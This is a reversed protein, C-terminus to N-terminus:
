THCSPGQSCDFSLQQLFCVDHTGDLLADRDYLVGLCLMYQVAIGKACATHIVDEPNVAM